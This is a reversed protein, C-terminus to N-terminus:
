YGFLDHQLSGMCANFGQRVFGYLDNTIAAAPLRTVRGAPIRNYRDEIAEMTDMAMGAARYGTACFVGYRYAALRGALYAADAQDNYQKVKRGKRSGALDDTTVAVRSPAPLRPPLAMSMPSQGLVAATLPDLVAPPQAERTWSATPTESQLDYM